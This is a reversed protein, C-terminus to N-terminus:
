PLLWRTKDVPIESNMVMTSDSASTEWAFPWPLIAHHSWVRSSAEM